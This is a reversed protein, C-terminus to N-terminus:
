TRLLIRTCRRKDNPKLSLPKLSAVQEERSAIHPPLFLCLIYWLSVARELFMRAKSGKVRWM